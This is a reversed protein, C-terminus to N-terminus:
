ATTAALILEPIEDGYREVINQATNVISVGIAKQQDDLVDDWDWAQWFVQDLIPDLPAPEGTFARDNMLIIAMAGDRAHVRGPVIWAAFILTLCRRADQITPFTLGLERAAAAFLDRLAIRDSREGEGALLRLSPSDLGAELSVAAQMPWDHLSILGTGAILELLGLRIFWTGDDIGFNEISMVFGGRLSWLAHLTLRTM